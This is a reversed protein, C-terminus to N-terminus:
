WRNGNWKNHHKNKKIERRGFSDHAQCEIIHWLDLCDLDAIRHGREMGPGPPWLFGSRRADPGADNLHKPWWSLPDEPGGGFITPWPCLTRVTSAPHSCCMLSHNCPETSPQKECQLDIPCVWASFHIHRIHIISLPQLAPWAPDQLLRLNHCFPNSTCSDTPWTADGISPWPLQKIRNLSEENWKAKDLVHPFSYTRSFKSVM